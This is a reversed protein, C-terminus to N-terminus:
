KTAPLRGVGRMLAALGEHDLSDGQELASVGELHDHLFQSDGLVALTEQLAEYDDAGLLVAARQGNRTIEFRAHTSAAEDVLKSLHARAEALPLTTMYLIIADENNSWGALHAGPPPSSGGLM